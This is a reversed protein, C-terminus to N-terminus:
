EIERGVAPIEDVWATEERLRKMKAPTCGKLLEDLTYRRRKPENAPRVLLAGNEVELQLKSGVGVDLLRLVDSPITMIAAGGQKRVNVTVM